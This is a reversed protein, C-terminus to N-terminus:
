KTVQNILHLSKIRLFLGIIMKHKVVILYQLFWSKMEIYLLSHMKKTCKARSTSLNVRKFMFLTLKEVTQRNTTQVLYKQLCIIHMPKLINMNSSSNMGYKFSGNHFYSVDNTSSM